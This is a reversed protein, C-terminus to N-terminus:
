TTYTTNSCPLLSSDVHAISVAWNYAPNYPAISQQGRTRYKCGANYTPKYPVISQQGEAIMPNGYQPGPCLLRKRCKNM